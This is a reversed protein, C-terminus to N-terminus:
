VRSLPQRGLGQRDSESVCKQLTVLIGEEGVATFGLREYLRIMPSGTFTRCHIQTKGRSETERLLWQYVRYAYVSGQAEPSLQLTHIFLERDRWELSLFGRWRGSGFISYNDNTLYNEEIWGQNWPLDHRQHYVWMNERMLRFALDYEPGEIPIVEIM